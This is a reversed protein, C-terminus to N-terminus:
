IFLRSFKLMQTNDDATIEAIGIIEDQIYVRVSEGINIKDNFVIQELFLSNGNLAYKEARQIVEVRKMHKLAYDLPMLLATPDEAHQLEDLTIATTLDFSGTATRLLFSMMGGTGLADGIDKCITRVYTGKSCTIDFLIKNNRIHLIDLSDVTVPRPRREVEIGERALDYLKQGNVKLASYMPPVQFIEGTSANFARRIDAETVKVEKQSIISGYSDQTDTEIGLTLEGRYKKKSDLLFQSVKTAQGICIPLVGAANPDLTGTHGVKKFSLRRRVVSVIDHSTMGPPKLINIIGKL